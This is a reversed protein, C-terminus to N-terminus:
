VEMNLVATVSGDSLICDICLKRKPLANITCSQLRINPDIQGIAKRIYDRIKEPNPNKKVLERVPIGEEEDLWWEGKNTRLVQQIKQILLETSSVWVIDQRKFVVDGHEDLLFDKM